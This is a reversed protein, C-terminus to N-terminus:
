KPDYFVDDDKKAERIADEKVVKQKQIEDKQKIDKEVKAFFEKLIEIDKQDVEFDDIEDFVTQLVKSSILLSIVPIVFRFIGIPLITSIISIFASIFFIKLYNYLTSIYDEKEEDELIDSSVKKIKQIRIVVTYISYLNVFTAVLIMIIFAM